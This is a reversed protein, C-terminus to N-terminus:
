MRMWFSLTLINLWVYGCLSLNGVATMLNVPQTVQSKVDSRTIAIIAFLIICSVLHKEQLWTDYFISHFLRIVFYLVLSFGNKDGAGFRLVDCLSGILVMYIYRCCLYVGCCCDRDTVEHFLNMSWVVWCLMLTFQTIKSM